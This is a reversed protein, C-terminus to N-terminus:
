CEARRRDDLAFVDQKTRPILVDRADFADPDDFITVAEEFSVNHKAFNITAKRV